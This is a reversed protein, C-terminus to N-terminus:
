IKLIYEPLYNEEDKSFDKFSSAYKMMLSLVDVKKLNQGELEHIAMCDKEEVIIVEEKELAPIDKKDVRKYSVAEQGNKKAYFLNGNRDSLCAVNGEKTLLEMTPIGYIEISPNFAYITRPITLGLRIGTNSGPGLLCYFCDVDKLKFNMAEELLSIGLNTRELAAKPNGLDYTKVLEGIKAGISLTKTATDLFLSIKKSDKM